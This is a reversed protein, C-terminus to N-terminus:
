VRANYKQSQNSKFECRRLVARRWPNGYLQVRQGQSALLQNVNTDISTGLYGFVWHLFTVGNPRINPKWAIGLKVM